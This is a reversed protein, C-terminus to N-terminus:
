KTEKKKTSILSDAIARLSDQRVMDAVRISDRERQYGARRVKYISDKAKENTNVLYSEHASQAVSKVIDCNSSILIAILLLYKM